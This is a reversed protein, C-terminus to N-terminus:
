ESWEQKKLLLHTYSEIYQCSITEYLVPLQLFSIKYLSGQKCHLSAQTNVLLMCDSQFIGM